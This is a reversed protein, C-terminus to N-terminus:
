TKVRFALSYREQTVPGVYHMPRHQKEVDYRPARLLILSGPPPNVEELIPGDRSKRIGFPASGKLVFISILDIYRSQDMHPSIGTSDTTYRYAVISNLGPGENFSSLHYVLARYCQWYYETRLGFINDFKGKVRNEDAEGIEMYDVDQTANLFQTDATQLLDANDDIEAVLAQTADALLFEELCVMGPRSFDFLESAIIDHVFMEEHFLQTDGM